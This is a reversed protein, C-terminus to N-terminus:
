RKTDIRNCGKKTLWEIAEKIEDAPLWQKIRFDNVELSHERLSRCDCSLFTHYRIQNYIEDSTKLLSNLPKHLLVSEDLEEIEKGKGQPKSEAVEMYLGQKGKTSTM